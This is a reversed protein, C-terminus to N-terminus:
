LDIAVGLRGDDSTTSVTADAPANDCHPSDERRTVDALSSSNGGALQLMITPRESPLTPPTWERSRLEDLHFYFRSIMIPTLVDLFQLVLGFTDNEVFSYGILLGDIVFVLVFYVLVERFVLSMFPTPAGVQLTSPRNKNWTNKWTVIIVVAESVMSSARTVIALSGCHVLCSYKRPAHKVQLSTSQNKPESTAFLVVMCTVLRNYNSIAYIRLGSFAAWIAYLLATLPTLMLSVTQCSQIARTLETMRM